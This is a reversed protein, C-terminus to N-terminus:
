TIEEAEDSVFKLPVKGGSGATVAPLTELWANAYSLKARTPRSASRSTTPTPSNASGRKAPSDVECEVTAAERKQAFGISLDGEVQSRSFGHPTFKAGPAIDLPTGDLTVRIVGIKQNPNNPM